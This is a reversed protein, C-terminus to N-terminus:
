AVVIQFIRDIKALVQHAIRVNPTSENMFKALSPSWTLSRKSPSPSGSMKASLDM